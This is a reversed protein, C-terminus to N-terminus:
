APQPKTRYFKGRVADKWDEDTTELIDSCDIDDDSDLQTQENTHEGNPLSPEVRPFLESTNAM